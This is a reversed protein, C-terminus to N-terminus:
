SPPQHSIWSVEMIPSQLSPTSNRKLKKLAGLVFSPNIRESVLICGLDFNIKPRQKCHLLSM